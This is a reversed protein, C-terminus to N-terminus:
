AAAPSVPKATLRRNRNPRLSHAALRLLGTLAAWTIAFRPASAPASPDSLTHKALRKLNMVIATLYAQIAVNALGRRVARRLGHQTKAVGHVGEVRWRHQAYIADPWEEARRRRARLLATYGTVIRVSRSRVTAPVCRERLDCGACDAASARYWRGGADGSGRRLIKGRPCRVLDNYEDYKFASQGVRGRRSRGQLPPILAEAGRAELAAYNAGSAYAGDATVRRVRRGTTAEIRDVQGMLERGENQEGTTLAVDVIVGSEGDVATHQKYSPEL